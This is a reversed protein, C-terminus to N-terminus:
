PRNTFFRFPIELARDAQLRVAAEWEMRRQSCIPLITEGEWNSGASPQLRTRNLGMDMNLGRIDVEVAQPALGEVGVRLRLTQMLPIENPEIAFSVRGEGIAQICPGNRLDCDGTPAVREFAPAEAQWFRALLFGGAALSVFALVTLFGKMGESVIRVGTM